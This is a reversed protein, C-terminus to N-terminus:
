DLHTINNIDRLSIKLPLRTAVKYRFLVYQVLEFHPTGDAKFHLGVYVLQGPEGNLRCNGKKGYEKYLEVINATTLDTRENEHRIINDVQPEPTQKTGKGGFFRRFM